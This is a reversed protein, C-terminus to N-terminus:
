PTGGTTVLETLGLKALRSTWRKRTATDPEASYVFMTLERDLM